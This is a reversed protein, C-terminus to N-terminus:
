QLLMLVIFILPTTTNLLKNQVKIARKKGNMERVKELSPRPALPQIFFMRTM